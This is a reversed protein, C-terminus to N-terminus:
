VRLVAFLTAILDFRDCHELEGINVVFTQDYPLAFNKRIVFEHFTLRKTLVLPNAIM